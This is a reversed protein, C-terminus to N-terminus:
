LGPSSGARRVESEDPWEGHPGCRLHAPPEARPNGEVKQWERLKKRCPTEGPPVDTAAEPVASASGGTGPKLAQEVVAGAFRMGLDAAPACGASLAGSVLGVLLFWCRTRRHNM